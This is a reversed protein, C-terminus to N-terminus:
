FCQLPIGPQDLRMLIAELEAVIGGARVLLPPCQAANVYSLRGDRTLLSYFVTAYKEGFAVSLPLGVYGLGIVAIKRAHATMGAM